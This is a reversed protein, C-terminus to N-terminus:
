IPRCAALLDRAAGEVHALGRDRAAVEHAVVLPEAGIAVRQQREEGPGVPVLLAACAGVPRRLALGGAGAVAGEAASGLLTPRSRPVGGRLRRAAFSYRM